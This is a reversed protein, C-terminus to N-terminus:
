EGGVSEYSAYFLSAEKFEVNALEKQSYKEPYRFHQPATTYDPSNALLATLHIPNSGPNFGLAPPDHCPTVSEILEGRSKRDWRKASFVVAYRGQGLYVCKNPTKLRLLFSEKYQSDM